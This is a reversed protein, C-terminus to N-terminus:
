FLDLGCDEPRVGRQLEEETPLRRDTGTTEPERVTKSQLVSTAKPDFYPVFVKAQETRRMLEDKHPQSLPIGYNIIGGHIQQELQHAEHYKGEAYLLSLDAIQPYLARDAEDRLSIRFMVRQMYQSVTQRDGKQAAFVANLLAYDLVDDLYPKYENLMEPKMQYAAESRERINALHREIKEQRGTMYYIRLLTTNLLALARQSVATRDIPILAEEAEKYREAETLLYASIIIDDDEPYPAATFHAALQSSIGNTRFVEDANKLMTKHGIRCIAWWGWLITLAGTLALLVSFLFGCFVEFGTKTPNNILVQLVTSIGVIIFLALTALATIRIPKPNKEPILRM